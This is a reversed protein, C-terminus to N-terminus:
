NLPSVIPTQADNLQSLINQKNSTATTKSLEAIYFKLIIDIKEKQLNDQLYDCVNDVIKGNSFYLLIKAIEESSFSGSLKIDPENKKKTDFIFEIKGM